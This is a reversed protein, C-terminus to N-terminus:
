ASGVIWLLTRKPKLNLNELAWRFAKAEYLPHFNIDGYAFPEPREYRFPVERALLIESVRKPHAAPAYRQALAARLKSRVFAIRPYGTTILWVRDVPKAFRAIGVLVGVASLGSGCPMVIERVQDPINEAQRSALELQVPLDPVNIM